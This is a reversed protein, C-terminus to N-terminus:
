PSSPLCFGSGEYHLVATLKSRAVIRKITVRSNAAMNNIPYFNLGANQHVYDFQENSLATGLTITDGISFTEGTAATYSDLPGKKQKTLVENYTANVQAFLNLSAIVLTTLM